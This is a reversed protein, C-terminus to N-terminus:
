TTSLLALGLCCLVSPHSMFPKTSVHKTRGRQECIVWVCVCLLQLNRCQVERRPKWSTLPGWGPTFPISGAHRQLSRFWLLALQFCSRRSSKWIQMSPLKLQSQCFSEGKRVISFTESARHFVLCNPSHGGPLSATFTPACNGPVPKFSHKLHLSSPHHQLLWM